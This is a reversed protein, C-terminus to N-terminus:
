GSAEWRLPRPELGPWTMHFKHHVFHCHPLNEKLVETGRSFWEVSQEVSMMRPLFLLGFPPWCALHVRDWTMRLFLCCSTSLYREPPLNDLKNSSTEKIILSWWHQKEREVILVGYCWLLTVVYMFCIKTLPSYKSFYLLILVLSMQIFQQLKIGFHILKIFLFIMGCLKNCL